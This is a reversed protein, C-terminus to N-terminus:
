WIRWTLVILTLGGSDQKWTINGPKLDNIYAIPFIFSLSIENFKLNIYGIKYKNTL